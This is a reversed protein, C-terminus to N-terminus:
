QTTKSSQMEELREEIARLARMRRTQDAEALEPHEPQTLGFKDLIITQNTESRNFTIFAEFSFDHNQQIGFSKYGYILSYYSAVIAFIASMTSSPPWRLCLLSWVGLIALLESPLLYFQPVIQIKEGHQAYCIACGLTAVLSLSGGFKYDQFNSTFKALITFYFAVMFNCIISVTCCFSLVSKLKWRKLLIYSLYCVLLTNIVYMPVETEAFINFFIPLLYKMSGNKYIIFKDLGNRTFFAFLSFFQILIGFILSKYRNDLQPLHDSILPDFEEM